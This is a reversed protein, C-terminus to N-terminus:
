YRAAFGVGALFDNSHENLGVGARMDLQLNPRSFSALEDLQEAARSRPRERRARLLRLPRPPDVHQHCIGLAVRFSLGKDGREALSELREAPRLAAINPDVSV